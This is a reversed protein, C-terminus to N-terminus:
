NLTKIEKMAAAIRELREGKATMKDFKEKKTGTLTIPESMPEGVLKECLEFMSKIVEDQKTIKAEAAALQASTVTDTPISFGSIQSEISAIKEELKKAREELTPVKAEAPATFDPQTIPVAEVIVTISGSADVTIVSGDELIYDAAPAQAGAITVQNGVAPATSGENLVVYIEGGDKLKLVAENAMITTIDATGQPTTGGPAKNQGPMFAPADFVAKIKALIDKANM